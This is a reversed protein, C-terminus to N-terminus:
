PLVLPLELYSIIIIKNNKNTSSGFFFLPVSCTCLSSFFSTVLSCVVGVFSFLVFDSGFGSVVVFVSGFNYWVTIEFSFKIVLICFAGRSSSFGEFYKVLWWTPSKTSRCFRMTRLFGSLFRARKKTFM